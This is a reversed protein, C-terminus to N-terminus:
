FLCCSDRRIWPHTFSTNGADMLADSWRSGDCTISFTRSTAHPSGVHEGISVTIANIKRFLRCAIVPIGASIFSTPLFSTSCAIRVMSSSSRAQSSFRSKWWGPCSGGTDGAPSAARRRMAAVKRRSSTAKVGESTAPTQAAVISMSSCISSSVATWCGMGPPCCPPPCGKEEDPPPPPAGTGGKPGPPPIVTSVAGGGITGGDCSGEDRMRLAEWFFSTLATPRQTASPM